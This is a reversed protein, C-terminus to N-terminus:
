LPDPGLTTTALRRTIADPDTRGRLPAITVAAPLVAGVLSSLLAGPGSDIYIVAGQRHLRHLSTQFLVPHNLHQTALKRIHQLTPAPRALASSYLPVAPLRVDATEMWTDLVTAVTTLLPHHYSTRSPLPACRTGAARALTHLIRLEGLPGSVVTQQPANDGAIRTHHLGLTALLAVVEAVPLALALMGSADPATPPPLARLLTHRAHLLRAGTETTIAEAVAMAAIDGVSHGMVWQPRSRFHHRLANGCAVTGTYTALDFALPDLALLDAPQPADRDTLLRTVPHATRPTVDDVTALVTAVDPLHQVATLAGPRYAGQGPCLM